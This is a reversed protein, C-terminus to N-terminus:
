SQFIKSYVRILNYKDRESQSYNESFRDYM